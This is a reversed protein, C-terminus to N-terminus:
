RVKAELDFRVGEPNEPSEGYWLRRMEECTALLADLTGQAAIRGDQM